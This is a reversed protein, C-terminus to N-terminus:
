EGRKLKRYAIYNREIKLASNKQKTYKPDRHELATGLRGRLREIEKLSSLLLGSSINQVLSNSNVARQFYAQDGNEFARAM